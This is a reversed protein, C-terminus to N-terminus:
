RLNGASNEEELLKLIGLPGRIAREALDLRAKIGLGRQDAEQNIEKGTDELAVRFAENLFEQSHM